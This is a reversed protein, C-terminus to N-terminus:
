SSLYTILLALPITYWTQPRMVIGGTFEVTFAIKETNGNADINGNYAVFERKKGVDVTYVEGLEYSGQSILVGLGPPSSETFKVRVVADTADVPFVVYERPDLGLITVPSPPRNFNDEKGQCFRCNPRNAETAGCDEFIDIMWGRIWQDAGNNEDYCWM